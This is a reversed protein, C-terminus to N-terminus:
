APVNRGVGKYLEHTVTRPDVVPNVVIETPEKPITSITTEKVVKAKQAVEAGLSLPSIL